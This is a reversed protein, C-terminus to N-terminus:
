QNQNILEALEILEQMKQPSLEPNILQHLQDETLKKQMAKKVQALQQEDLGAQIVKKVIDQSPLIHGLLKAVLGKSGNKNSRTHEVDVRGVVKGQDMVPVSYYIPIGNEQTGTMQVADRMVDEKEKLKNKLDELAEKMQGIEKELKEIEARQQAVKKYGRNLEDQLNSIQVDKDRLMKLLYEREDEERKSAELVAVVKQLQEQVSEKEKIQGVVTHIQALLQKAYPPIEQEKLMLADKQKEIQLFLERMGKANRTEAIVRQIDKLSIGKDYFETLLQWRYVDLEKDLLVEIEEKPYGKRVCQSYLRMRRIDGDKSVYDLVQEKTLGYLFDERVLRVVEQKWGPSAELKQLYEMQEKSMNEQNM